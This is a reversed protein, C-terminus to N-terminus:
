QSDVTERRSCKEAPMADMCETFVSKIRENRSPDEMADDVVIIWGLYKAFAVLASLKRDYSTSGICCHHHVLLSGLGLDLAAWKKEPFLRILGTENAWEVTAVNIKHRWYPDQEDLIRGSDPDVLVHREDEPFLRQFLELTSTNTAHYRKVHCQWALIGRWYTPLITDVWYLLSSQNGDHRALLQQRLERYDSLLAVHRAM